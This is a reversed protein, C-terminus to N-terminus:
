LSGITRRTRPIARMGLTGVTLRSSDLKSVFATSLKLDQERSITSLRSSAKRGADSVRSKSPLTSDVLRCASAGSNTKVLFLFPRAAIIRKEAGDSLGPLDEIDEMATAIHVVGIACEIEDFGAHPRNALAQGFHPEFCAHIGCEEAILDDSPKPRETHLVPDTHRELTENFEFPDDFRALVPLRHSAPLLAGM